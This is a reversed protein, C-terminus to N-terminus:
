EGPASVHKEPAVVAPDPKAVPDPHRPEYKYIRNLQHEGKPPLGGVDILCPSAFIEGQLARYMTMSGIGLWLLVELTTFLSGFVRFATSNFELALQGTAACLTGLPFTFGWWGLNFTLRSVLWMDVLLCIAILLWVLAFGWLMLSVAITIGYVALAMTRADAASFQSRGVFAAGSEDALKLLMTSLRLLAYNSQGLPGLPLLITVTLAAEPIKHITLRAYFMALTLMAMTFGAGWMIYSACITFRAHAPPLYQAMNAGAASSVIPGVVPLLMVGTISSLTLEHRTFQIIPMGIGIFMGIVSGLMWLAWLFLTFNFGWSPVIIQISANVVAQYAVAFAGLFMSQQPHRLLLRILAPWRIFRVISIVLFLLFLCVDFALVIYALYELWRAPYPFTYLLSATISTGMVVTFWSPPFNLAIRRMEQHVRKYWAMLKPRHGFLSLGIEFRENDELEQTEIADRVAAETHLQRWSRELGPGDTPM